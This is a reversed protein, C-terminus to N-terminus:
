RRLLLAPEGVRIIIGRQDNPMSFCDPGVQNEKRVGFDGGLTRATHNSIELAGIRGIDGDAADVPNGIFDFPFAIGM